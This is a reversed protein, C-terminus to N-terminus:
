MCDRTCNRTCNGRVQPSATVSSSASQAASVDTSTESASSRLRTMEEEEELHSLPVFRAKQIQKAAAAGVLAGGAGLLGVGVGISLGTKLGVLAGIPGGIAAGTVGGAMVLGFAKYRSAKRLELEAAMSKDKAATIHEEASDVAAQQAETIERLQHFSQAIDLVMSSLNMYEGQRQSAEFSELGHVQLLPLSEDVLQQTQPHM